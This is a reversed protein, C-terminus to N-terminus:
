KGAKHLSVIGPFLKKCEVEEFGATLLLERLKEASYFNLMSDGLYQYGEVSKTLPAVMRKVFLNIYLQLGLQIIRSDPPTTELHFFSGGPKLVRHVEKFLPELKGATNLNRSALSITIIEFFNDHFPLEAVDSLIYNIRENRKRAQELMEESFDIAYVNTNKGATKELLDAMEGTGTCLDLWNGSKGNKCLKIVRKRWFVDLGFTLVHNVLEYNAAINKYVTQFFNNM